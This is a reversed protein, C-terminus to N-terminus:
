SSTNKLREAISYNGVFVCSLECLNCGGGEEDGPWLCWDRSEHGQKRERLEWM